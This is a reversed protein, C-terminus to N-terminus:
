EFKLSIDLPYISNTLAGISIFDVGTEAVRALDKKDMNGSAETLARGGIFEVAQKMQENTMNDLMIIDAGAEVAQKVQEMTEVEVEIKLTHPVNKRASEIANTIGGAAKIHNDKILVGDSLSFRHNYGGGTKVAYKELLRLGPTTKRTDLIKVDFGKVKEVTNKTNTAIGSMRQMLNLALREGMLVSVASGEITALIDGTKVDQGDEFFSSMRVDKDVYAFVAKAADMGCLVGDAKAIFKGKIIKGSPVTSMTTIDGTGWDESLATEILKNLSFEVKMM